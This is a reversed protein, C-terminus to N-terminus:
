PLCGVRKTDLVVDDIYLDIDPAGIPHWTRFGLGLTTFLTVLNSSNNHINRFAAGQTTGDGDVWVAIQDPADNFEWELCFWQNKPITGGGGIYEPGDGTWYTLQWEANPGGLYSGVELHHDEYPFGALTNSSTVYASHGGSESPFGTTFYYLRGFYHKQLALPLNENFMMARETGGKAHFVVAYNGHAAKASQVTISNSASSIEKRTWVTTKLSGTEFDECFLGACGGDSGGGSGADHTGSDVTTSGADHPGADPAGADHGADQSAAGADETGGGSGGTAAPGADDGSIKQPMQSILGPECGALVALVAIWWARNSVETLPRLRIFRSMAM